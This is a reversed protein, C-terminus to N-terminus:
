KNRKKILGGKNFGGGRSLKQSYSETAPSSSSSKSTTSTTKTSSNNAGVNTKAAGTGKSSPTKGLEKDAASERPAGSSTTTGKSSSTSTTRSSSTGTSPASSTTRTSPRNGTIFDIARNILGDGQVRENYREVQEATPTRGKVLGADKAIALAAGSIGGLRSIPEGTVRAYTERLTNIQDTSLPKGNLDKGTQLMESINQNVSRETARQAVGSILGGFPVVSTAAKFIKSEPSTRFDAYKNYDEVSWQDVPKALGTLKRADKEAQSLDSSRESTSGTVSVPNESNFSSLVRSGTKPAETKPPEMQGQQMALLWKPLGTAPDIDMDYNTVMGGEAMMAPAPAEDVAVLEEPSFPLDEDMTPREGGIRGEADLEELGKKAQKVMKEIRDLGIYRVVNAPIVYEGESAMIPVDDRVEEPKAGPPVENGSIPDINEVMGGEAFKPRTLDYGQNVLGEFDIEIGQKRETVPAAKPKPKPVVQDFMAQTLSINEDVMQQFSGIFNVDPYADRVADRFASYFDYDEPGLVALVTQDGRNVIKEGIENIRNFADEEFRINSNPMYSSVVNDFAFNFYESTFMEKPSTFSNLEDILDDVDGFDFQSKNPDYELDISDVKIADGYEAKLDKLVKEVGKVYTAYFGSKPDMAKAIDKPDTFRKKIIEEFPPIVVSTLGNKAAHAMATEIGLRVTEETKAVPPVTVRSNIDTLNNLEFLEIAVDDVNSADQPDLGIREAIQEAFVNFNIEDTDTKKNLDDLFNQYAKIDEATIKDSIYYRKADWEPLNKLYEKKAVEWDKTPKLFGKQLIDSQLEEILIYRKDGRQRESLRVHAITQPTFHADIASKYKFTKEGPTTAEIAYAAYSNPVEQDVLDYQRQISEFARTPQAKVDYVNKAFIDIVEDYTYRKQPDVENLIGQSNIQSNRITPNDQLQKLLESGKLGQSPIEMERAIDILPERFNIEPSKTGEETTKIYRPVRYTAGMASVVNPDYLDVLKDATKSIGKVAAGVGPIAEAVSLGANLAGLAMDTKSGTNYGREAQRYGEQGGFLLGLPGFDALGLEEGQNPSTGAVGRATQKAVNEPLGLAKLGGEINSAFNERYTPTYQQLTDTERAVFDSQRPRSVEQIEKESYGAAMLDDINAGESIYDLLSKKRDPTMWTDAM